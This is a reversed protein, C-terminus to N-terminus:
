IDDTEKSVVVEVVLGGSVLDECSCSDRLMVDFALGNHGDHDEHDDDSIDEAVFNWYKAASLEMMHHRLREFHAYLPWLFSIDIMEMEAFNQLEKQFKPEPSNDKLSEATSKNTPRQGM